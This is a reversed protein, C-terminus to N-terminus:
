RSDERYIGSCDKGWSGDPTEVVLYRLREQVDQNELFAIAEEKSAASYEEYTCAAGGQTREVVRKGKFSVGAWADRKGLGATEPGFRERVLSQYFARREAPCQEGVLRAADKARTADVGSPVMGTNSLAVIVSEVSADDCKWLLRAASERVESSTHTLLEPMFLSVGRLVADHEFPDCLAADLTRVVASPEPHHLYAIYWSFRVFRQDRERNASSSSDVAQPPEPQLPPLTSGKFFEVPDGRLAVSTAARLGLEGVWSPSFQVSEWFSVPRPNGESRAAVGKGLPIKRASTVRGAVLVIQYEADPFRYLWHDMAGLQAIGRASGSVGGFHKMFDVGTMRVTPTGLLKQVEAASMGVAIDPRGTPGPVEEARGSRRRFFGLIGGGGM